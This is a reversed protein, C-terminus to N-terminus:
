FTQTLKLHLKSNNFSFANRNTNGIVYQIGLNGVKTNQTFGLGFSYTTLLTSHLKNKLIGLDIIGSLYSTENILYNYETNLFSYGSALLSNEDFGRISNSGGIRYLENELYGESLLLETSNKLVINQRQSISILYLFYNRIKHQQLQERKGQTVQSYLHIKQNFILHYNPRTYSYSIGYFVSSFDVIDTATQSAIKNSRKSELVFGVRHSTELQYDAILHNSINLFTTDQKYIDFDYGVSFASNFIFPTKLSLKLSQSRDQTSLWKLQLSEGQNLSNLLKIDLNGYLQLKKIHPSTSFGVLGDFFNSKERKLYLYLTTSDKEFLIEPKKIESVFATTQIIKSIQTITKKNFPENLDIKLAQKVFSKPFSPYGKIIIKDINREGNKNIILDAVILNEYTTINDLQISVFPFGKNQYFATLQNIFLATNTFSTEYTISDKLSLNLEKALFSIDPHTFRIKDISRNIEFRIYYLSDNQYTSDIKHQIFGKHNLKERFTKIEVIYVSDNKIEKPYNILQIITNSNVDSGEIKLLKTNQSFVTQYISLLFLTYIYPTYKM